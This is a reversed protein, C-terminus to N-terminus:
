ENERNMQVFRHHLSARPAEVVDAVVVTVNDPGKAAERTLKSAVAEPSEDSFQLILELVREAGLAADLGDSALVLRQGPRAPLQWLQPCLPGDFGLAEVIGAYDPDSMVERAHDPDIEALRQGVTQPRTLTTIRGAEALYVVGDGVHAGDLVDTDGVRLLRVVDLTTSMGALLPEDAARQVIRRHARVADVETPTTAANGAVTEIAIRSAVDGANRGGVGDAIAVVAATALHADQNDRRLGPASRGASHLGLVSMSPTSDEVSFELTQLGLGIVDGPRLEVADGPPIQRGNVSTGLDAIEPLLLWRQGDRGLVAHHLSVSRDRIVLDNDDARGIRVREAAFQANIVGDASCLRVGQQHGAASDGNLAAVASAAASGAPLQRGPTAWAASAPPIAAPPGNPPMRSTLLAMPQPEAASSPRGRRRGRRLRSSHGAELLDDELLDNELVGDQDTAIESEFAAGPPRGGIATPPDAWATVPQAPKGTSSVPKAKSRKVSRRTASRWLLRGVRTVTLLTIALSVSGVIVCVLFLSSPISITVQGNQSYASTSVVVPLYSSM